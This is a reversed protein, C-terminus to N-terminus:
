VIHYLLIHILVLIKKSSIVQNITFDHCRTNFEVRFQYLITEILVIDIQIVKM